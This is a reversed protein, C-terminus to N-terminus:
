EIFNQERLFKVTKENKLMKEIQLRYSPNEINLKINEFDPHGKYYNKADEIEKNIEEEKVEVKEEDGIKDTILAMKIRETAKEKFEKMLDEETKKIAEKYKEFDMGGQTISNKLEDLMKKSELMILREPIEKFQANKIIVEIMEITKKDTEKFNLEDIINNEIQAKLADVNDFGFEKSFENNLEPRIVNYVNVVEVKFLIKKGAVKKDFYDEPFVLEFEKKDSSKLGLLNEVFGPIFLKEDILQTYNDIKADELPVGNLFLEMNLTAKNGKEIAKDALEIKEKSGQLESLTAEFKKKVDESDKSVKENKIKLGKYNGLTIEPIIMYEVNFVISDGPVLKEVKIEPDFLIKEKIDQKPMEERYAREVITQLAEEYIGMEGVSKSVMDYPVKGKRFGPINIHESIHEAAKRIDKEYDFFPVEITFIVKSEEVKKTTVIAM